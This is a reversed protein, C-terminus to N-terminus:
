IKKQTKELQIALNNLSLLNDKILLDEPLEFGITEELVVVFMIQEISDPLYDVISIDNMSEKESDSFCIGMEALAHFILERMNKQGKM